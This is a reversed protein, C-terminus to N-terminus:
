EAFDLLAKAQQAVMTDPFDSVIKELTTKAKNKLAPTGSAMQKRALELSKSAMQGAKVKPDKSLDKKITALEKPLDFGNFHESMETLLEFAHYPNSADQAEKIKAMEDDIEKQIVEMMKGAAEKVDAKSSSTSKKLSGALGKYNGIEVAQWTAKLAAPISDPEMKWAAGEVAKDAAEEIDDKIALEIQGSPKIFRIQSANQPGIEQFLGCAKEFDRSTDVLIKWPVKNQQVYGQIKAKPSGSNVAIFVVPRGDYKKAAEIMEPWRAKCGADDEDFFWLVIGKGKLGSVSLPGTNLWADPDSPFPPAQDAHAISVMALCVIWVPLLSSVNLPFPRVM